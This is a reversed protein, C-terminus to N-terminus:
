LSRAPSSKVAQISGRRMKAIPGSGSAAYHGRGLDPDDRLPVQAVQRGQDRGEPVMQTHRRRGVGLEPLEQGLTERIRQDLERAGVAVALGGAIGVRAIM